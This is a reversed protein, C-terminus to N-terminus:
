NSIAAHTGEAHEIFIPEVRLCQAPTNSRHLVPIGSLCYVDSFKRAAGKMWPNL